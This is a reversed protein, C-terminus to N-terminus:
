DKTILQQSNCAEKRHTVYITFCQKEDAKSATKSILIM